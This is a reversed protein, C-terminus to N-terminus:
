SERVEEVIFRNYFFAKDALHLKQSLDALLEVPLEVPCQRPALMNWYALRGGPRTHRVLQAMLDASNEESMYEFIDSLNYRDIRLDPEAALFDEVSVLRWELRDLNARIPEFNEERLAHPLAEGHTGTLIWTLYPNEAPSLETLAHRARGLIRDAVSGEVYNFFSPDRGLRGMVFRSFFLKFMSRWRWTNWRHDYFAHRDEAAFLEAIRRNGHVLPLIRNRFTGFYREFKGSSGIGAAIAEKNADWFSRAGDQLEPRCRGYFGLRQAGDAPRSGVLELLERHELKRFAAVRLELCALQAPNLDLAVVRSPNKTLLSLSNEGASAISLCVDGEQVDLGDLLVDADEWCQAYRIASFDAHKEVESAMRDWRELRVPLEM